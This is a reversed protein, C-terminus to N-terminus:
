IGYLAERWLILSRSDGAPSSTDSFFLFGPWRPVSRVALGTGAVMSRTIGSKRKELLYQSGEIFLKAM